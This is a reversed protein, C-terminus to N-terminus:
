DIANLDDVAKSWDNIYREHNDNIEMLERNLKQAQGGDAYTEPLELQSAIEVQRKEM